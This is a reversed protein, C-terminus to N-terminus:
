PEKIRSLIQKIIMNFTNQLLVEVPGLKDGNVEALKVGFLSLLLERLSQNLGKADFAEEVDLVEANGLLSDVLLEGKASLDVLEGKFLSELKNRFADILTFEVAVNGM